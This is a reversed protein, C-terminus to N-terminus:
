KKGGLRSFLNGLVYFAMNPNAALRRKSYGLAHKWMVAYPVYLRVAHGASILRRQIADRPVGLLMQFEFRDEPANRRQIMELIRDILREDHTAFEVMHGDDLLREGQTLLKEKMEPKRQIAIDAPELYIGICLRVRTKLGKLAAIDDDTRHLRTQLVTGMDPFQPLLRRYIELTMDTYPHDEMDITIPIKKATAYEAIRAITKTCTEISEHSGLQTPKMSITAYEQEGLLDILTIYSTVTEEVEKMDTLEEGLLDVTSKLGQETWLRRATDAGAQESDGAVYPAAFIKVLPNPMLDVLANQLSM